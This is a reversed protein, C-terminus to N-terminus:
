YTVGRAAWEKRRQAAELTASFGGRDMMPLRAADGRELNNAEPTLPPMECRIASLDANIRDPDGKAATFTLVYLAGNALEIALDCTSGIWPWETEYPGFPPLKLRTKLLM